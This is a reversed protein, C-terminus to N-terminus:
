PGDAGRGWFSGGPCPVAVAIRRYIETLAEADPAKYFFEPRSAMRRLADEELDAGLGITFLVTGAAKAGQAEAEAVAVPVPNARGDTLVVM